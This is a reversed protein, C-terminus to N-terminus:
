PNKDEQSYIDGFRDDYTGSIQFYKGKKYVVETINLLSIGEDADLIVVPCNEDELPYSLAHILEKITMDRGGESCDKRTEYPMTVM